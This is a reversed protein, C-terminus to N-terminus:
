AARASAMSQSKELEDAMARLRREVCEIVEDPTSTGATLGAAEAGHLWESRLEQENEVQYVRDCHAACTRTLERTNNSNSGGVVIVVDCYGALEAAANQRQKTPQCVTDVFRVDSVSFRRRILGVLHRVHDMPQTTQAVIGFRDRCSLEFVDAETLVVDFEDLDEYMGRVEVHARKGIIVPHYGLAVFRKLARHAARVLPCTAELVEKGARVAAAISRDSAGHATIMVTRTEADELGRSLYIGRSRLQSLVTENHVLDGLITVPRNASTKLALSIADRVGFCMGLHDARLIRMVVGKYYM